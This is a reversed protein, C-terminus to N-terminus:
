LKILKGVLLGCLMWAWWPLTFGEDRRTLAYIMNRPLIANCFGEGYQQICKERLVAYQEEAQFQLDIEGLTPAAGSIPTAVIYSM